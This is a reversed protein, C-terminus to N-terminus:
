APDLASNLDARDGGDAEYRAAVQAILAPASALRQRRGQEVAVADRAQDLEDDTMTTYDM